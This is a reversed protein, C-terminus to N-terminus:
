MQTLRARLQDAGPDQLDELIELSRVYSRRAAPADGALRYADGLDRLVTASLAPAGQAFLLELAREYCAISRGHDGLHLHIYGLSEWAESQGFRHDLALSLRLARECYTLATRLDGQKAYDWGVANLVNAQGMEHGCQEFLELAQKNHPLAQGFDEQCEYMWGINVHTIAEGVPDGLTGFLELARTFHTHADAYRHLRTLARALAGHARAFKLDDHLREAAELAARQTTAWDHWHGQRDLFTTLGWALQWVHTDFGYETALKAAALLAPRETKLWALADDQDPFDEATVGDLAASPTIPDRSPDLLRNAACTTHLYHDLLRHVVSHRETHHRAALERAYARLLDHLRYRDTGCQNVLNTRHLQALLARAQPAPCAALSAAAAVSIEPGPHLGLLRFLRAAEPTVVRHSWSFVARVNTDGIDLADLDDRSDRLEAALAALPLSLNLTARAAVIALALPLYACAGIIAEVAGPEKTVRDPGLRAALLQRADAPSLVDLPAPHAGEAVVLGALDNRSTILTLCGPSGSLLLRVQDADRANDLLVLVRKGALLSRFLGAQAAVNSPVREPPVSFADLFDRLVDAPDAAEEAPGFGCLDVHIQGDPFRGAVQHAWRVALATKGVGAAGTVLCIPASSARAGDALLGNLAALAERRGVFRDITAPLQRPTVIPHASPGVEHVVAPARGAVLDAHVRRLEPSPDVGLEAAIHGRVTEYAELAEAYRGSQGLAALLRVWLSERLPYRATLAGLEATLEGPRGHALDLDIRRELASLYREVLRPTQNERLWESDVGEYPEGRWLRLAEVLWAREASVDPQRAAKGLLRVFRLADVDDPDIWLVFGTAGSDIRVGGLATRLRGAYTQLSRRANGPLREGWVAAALEDVTVPKGASMALVVLLSRLRGATLRVPGDDVVVEFPGLVRVTLRHM